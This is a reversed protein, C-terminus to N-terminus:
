KLEINELKETQAVQQLTDLFERAEKEDKFQLAFCRQMGNTFEAKIEFELIPSLAHIQYSVGLGLGKVDFSLLKSM